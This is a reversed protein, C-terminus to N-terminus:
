RLAFVPFAVVSGNRHVLLPQRTVASTPAELSAVWEELASREYAFGDSCVVPDIIRSLTIPCRASSAASTPWFQKWFFVVASFGQQFSNKGATAAALNKLDQIHRRQYEEIVLKALALQKNLSLVNKAQEAQVGRAFSANSSGLKEVQSKPQETMIMNLASQFSVQLAAVPNLAEAKEMEAGQIAADQTNVKVEKSAFCAGDSTRIYLHCVTLAAFCSQALIPSAIGSLSPASATVNLQLYMHWITGLVPVLCLEVAEICLELAHM